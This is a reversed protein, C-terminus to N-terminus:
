KLYSIEVPFRENIGGLKEYAAPTLRINVKNNVGTDPLKGVVRVFVSMENMENRVRLVTGVPATRHLALYKKTDSGGEIVSAFGMESLVEIDELAQSEKEKIGEFRKREADLAMSRTPRRSRLPQRPAPPVVAVNPMAPPDMVPKKDRIILTQGLQIAENVLNNRKRLDDVEVEYTRAIAYLTEGERVTHLEYKTADPVAAVEERTPADLYVILEQGIDIPNDGIANWVRVDDVKVQYQQSISFLTEGEEVVHRAKKGKALQPFLPIRLTDGISLKKLNVKKNLERLDDVSVNYRQSIAFLTEGESVQHLVFIEGLNREIGVSDISGNASAPRNAILLGIMMFCQAFLTYRM